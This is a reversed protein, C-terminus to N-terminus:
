VYLVCVYVHVCVVRMCWVCVCMSVCVVDVSVAKVELEANVYRSVDYQTLVIVPHGTVPSV